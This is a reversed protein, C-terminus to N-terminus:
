SPPATASTVSSSERGNGPQMADTRRLRLVPRSGRSSERSHSTSGGVSPGFRIQEPHRHHAPCPAETAQVVQCRDIPCLERSSGNGHETLGYHGFSRYWPCASVSTFIGVRRSRVGRHGDSPKRNQDLRRHCFRPAGFALHSPAGSRARWGSLDGAFPRSKQSWGIPSLWSLRGDAIDGLARLMFAVGLVAGALGSAVHSNETVQSTALAVASFFMGLAMSSAGFVFSGAVPLRQGILAAAILGGIVLNM